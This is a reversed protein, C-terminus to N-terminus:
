DTIKPVLTVNNRKAWTPIWELPEHSWWDPRKIGLDELVTLAANHGAGLWSFSMPWVGNSLYLHQIPTRPPHCGLFPRDFYLQGPQVTGGSWVGGIASDNRRSIDLPSYSFSDVIGKSFGPAYEDLRATCRDLVDQTLGEDWDTPGSHRSIRYPVEAWLQVSHLGKPAANPDHKSFIFNAGLFALKEPIRGRDVDSFCKQVEALTDAGFNFHWAKKLDPDFESGVWNPEQKSLYGATFLVGWYNYNRLVRAVAPDIHDEGVLRLFTPVPTLNSIVAKRALLTKAPYSAHPGLEVGTAVGDKVLIKTVECNQLVKGGHHVLCRFIAHPIQHSGGISQQVGFSSVLLLAGIPGIVKLFPEFACAHQWGALQAKLQEDEFLTDILEYGTLNLYDSPVHPLEGFLRVTTDWNEVSPPSYVFARMIQQRRDVFANMIDKFVKADHENFKRWKAYTRNANWLDPAFAKGDLYPTARSFQPVYLDLGFKELELDMMATSHGTWIGSAHPNQRWGPTAYEETACHTGIQDGKEIVVVKVGSKALYAGATLGNIGGGVVIVDFDTNVQPM